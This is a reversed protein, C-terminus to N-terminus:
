TVKTKLASWWSPFFHKQQGWSKWLQSPFRSDAVHLKIHLMSQICSVLNPSKGGNSYESVSHKFWRRRQSGMLPVLFAWPQPRSSGHKCSVFLDRMLLGFLMTKSNYETANQKEFVARDRYPNLQCPLLTTKGENVWDKLKLWLYM